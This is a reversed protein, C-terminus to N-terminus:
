KTGDGLWLYSRGNDVWRIGLARGRIFDYDESRMM